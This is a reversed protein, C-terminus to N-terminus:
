NTIAEDKRRTQELEMETVMQTGGVVDAELASRRVSAWQVRQWLYMAAYARWPRWSEARQALERANNLSTVRLLGLDGAPFADPDGLARMAIYQATWDGVGPLERLRSQFEEVKAVSTFDVRVESVAFCPIHCGWRSEL